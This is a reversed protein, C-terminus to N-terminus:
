KTLVTGNKGKLASKLGSPSTILAKKGGKKLFAIAAEIKPKMSGEAFQNERLFKEAEKIKLKKIKQQNKKGYNLYVADVGTLILMEDARIENALVQSARDKDIVASIGKLGNKTQIVPIGGGGACIVITKKRILEQITKEEIIKKPLPSAVVRRWGRGSDQMVFFGKKKLEAAKEKSLFPGVPKTPRKFGPDKSDVLVQTLLSIVSRNIKHKQLLNELEQEILFGIEGQSEAVAVELPVFYAKGLANEIQILINGVQPGNGHTLVIRSDSKFLPFLQNLANKLNQIQVTLSPKQRAKLLANGGLAVVITKSMMVLRPKLIKIKTKPKKSDFVM